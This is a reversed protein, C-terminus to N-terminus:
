DSHYLNGMGKKFLKILVGYDEIRISITTIQPFWKLDTQKYILDLCLKWLKLLVSQIYQDQLFDHIKFRIRKNEANICTLM